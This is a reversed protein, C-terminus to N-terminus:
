EVRGTRKPHLLLESFRMGTDKDSVPIRPIAYPDCGHQVLGGEYAFAAQYGAQRAETELFSDYIGYPWALGKVKIGLRDELVEKSRELQLKVFAEYEVPSLRAREKRFNPHWYTHSQIQVLGSSQMERLQEWTLAYSANSIASPYIFLTVPVHHKLVVPFMQTYVSESGDDATLVVTPTPIESHDLLDQVLQHLPIVQYHHDELWVLQAEFVSTRVTTSGPVAPDFRHYVLIPTGQAQIVQACGYLFFCAIVARLNRLSPHKGGNTRMQAMM